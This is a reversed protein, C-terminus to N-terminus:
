IPDSQGEKTTEKPKQLTSKLIKEVDELPVSYKQMLGQIIGGEIESNKAELNSIEQLVIELQQRLKDAKAKLTLIQKNNSELRQRLNM